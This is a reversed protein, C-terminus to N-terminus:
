KINTRIELNSQQANTADADLNPKKIINRLGQSAMFPVGFTILVIYINTFLTCPSAHFVLLKMLKKLGQHFAGSALMM